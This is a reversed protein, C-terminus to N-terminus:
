HLSQLFAVLEESVADPYEEQPLLAGPVRVFKTIGKAGELAEMEAKSRKPSKTSSMVLTPVKGELNAFLGVFEERSRTPDLLGTLFASPAFRAGERQTLATRKEVVSPTVNDAEAYVHTLYQLRINKPSSVMYKYMAWGVGPSNLTNRLLGYRTEMTDDRGFVIPLPGAWTPAVLAVAAADLLGKSVARAAITAAHGGGVIVLPGALSGLPGDNASVFDVLFQEYLDATYDIAPRDSLGLGPWDVCVIQYSANSKSLLKEAVADWEETTSVDSITPLMLITQTPTSGPTVFEVANIKIPSGKHTWTWQKPQVKSAEKTSSVAADIRVGRKQVGYGLSKKGRPLPPLGSSGLDVAATSALALGFSTVPISIVSACNIQSGVSKGRVATSAASSSVANVGCCSAATAM